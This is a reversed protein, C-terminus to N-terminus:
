LESNHKLSTTASLFAVRFYFRMKWEDRWNGDFDLKVFIYKRWLRTQCFTNGDFDLKVSICEWPQRHISVGCIRRHVRFTFVLREQFASTPLILFLFTTNSFGLQVSILKQWVRTLCFNVLYTFVSIKNERHMGCHRSWDLVFSRTTIRAGNCDRTESDM